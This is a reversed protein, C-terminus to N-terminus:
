RGNRDLENYKKILQHRILEYKKRQYKLLYELNIGDKTFAQPQLSLMKIKTSDINQSNLLNKGILLTNKLTTM